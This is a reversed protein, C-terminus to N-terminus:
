LDPTNYIEADFIYFGNGKLSSVSIM